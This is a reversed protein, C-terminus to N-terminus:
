ALEYQAVHGDYYHMGRFPQGSAEVQHALRIVESIADQDIGTRDMGPNVDVFLGVRSGRWAEIQAAAEVLASICVNSFEDALERIRRAGAGIAPYALLVDAAGAECVTLLELSTSCKFHRIGHATWQGMVSALKATKVHPRLRDAEGGVLRLTAQINNDVLEPYIALAPTMVEDIERIRYDELDLGALLVAPAPKSMM